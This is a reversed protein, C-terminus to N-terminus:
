AMNNKCITYTASISSSAWIKNTLRIQREIHLYQEMLMVLLLNVSGWGNLYTATAQTTEPLTQIFARLMIGNKESTYIRGLFINIQNDTSDIKRAILVIKEAEEAMGLSFYDDGLALLIKANPQGYKIAKEFVNASKLYDSTSQYAVGLEFLLDVNASDKKILSKLLTIADGYKGDIMLLKARTLTTDPKNQCYTFTSLLIISILIAAARSAVKSM